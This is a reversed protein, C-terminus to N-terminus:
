EIVEYIEKYGYKANSNFADILAQADADPNKFFARELTFYQDRSDFEWQAFVTDMPGSYDVYIRRNTCGANELVASLTKFAAVIEPAKGREAQYVERLMYM